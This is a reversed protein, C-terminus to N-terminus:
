EEDPDEYEDWDRSWGVERLDQFALYAHPWPLLIVDDYTGGPPIASLLREMAAFESARAEREAHVCANALWFDPDDAGGWLYRDREDFLSRGEMTLANSGDMADYANESVLGFLLTSVRLREARLEVEYPDDSHM